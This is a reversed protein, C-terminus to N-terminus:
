KLIDNDKLWDDYIFGIALPFIAPVLTYECHTEGTIVWSIFAAAGCPLGLFLITGVTCM